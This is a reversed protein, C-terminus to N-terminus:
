SIWEALCCLMYIRFYCFFMFVFSTKLYKCLVPDFNVFVINYTICLFIYFMLVYSIIFIVLDIIHNSTYLFFMQCLQILIFFAFNQFIKIYDCQLSHSTQYFRKKWIAGFFKGNKYNFFHVGGIFAMLANGVSRAINNLPFFPSPYFYRIESFSFSIKVSLKNSM